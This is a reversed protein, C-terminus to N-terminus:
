KKSKSVMWCEKFKSRIIDCAPNGVRFTSYFEIILAEKPLYNFANVCGRFDYISQKPDGVFIKPITTDNLLM